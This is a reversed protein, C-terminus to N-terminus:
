NDQINAVYCGEYVLREIAEFSGLSSFSLSLCKWCELNRGEREFWDFPYLHNLGFGLM